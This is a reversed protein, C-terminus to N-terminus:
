TIVVVTSRADANTVKKSHWQNDLEHVLEREFLVLKVDVGCLRIAASSPGCGGDLFKLDFGVRAAVM